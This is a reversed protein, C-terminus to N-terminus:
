NLLTITSSTDIMVFRKSPRQARYLFRNFYEAKPIFGVDAKVLVDEGNRLEYNIKEGPVLDRDLLQGQPESVNILFTDSRWLEVNSVEIETLDWEILAGSGDDNPADSITLSAAHVLLPILLVLFTIM